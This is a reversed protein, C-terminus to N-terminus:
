HLDRIDFVAVFIAKTKTIKAKGAAVNARAPPEAPNAALPAKIPEACISSWFSLFFVGATAGIGGGRMLTGAIGFNL